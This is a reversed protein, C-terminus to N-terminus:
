SVKERHPAFFVRSFIEEGNAPYFRGNGGAPLNTLEGFVLRRGDTYFDVRIYSLEASLKRAAELLPDFFSWDELRFDTTPFALSVGLARRDTDFSQRDKSYRDIISVVKPVGDRCHVSGELRLAEDLWPEVIVRRALGAYNRELSVRFYDHELWGTIKAQAAVWEAESGIRLFRGSSHTPKVAVPWVPPRYAAIAEASDLVALTPVTTGPGLREEVYAKGLVKDSIRKRLPNELEPGTKLAYLFDNFLRDPPGPMRGLRFGMGLWAHLRLIPQALGRLRPRDWVFLFARALAQRLPIL